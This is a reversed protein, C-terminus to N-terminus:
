RYVSPCSTVLYRFYIHYYYNQNQTLTTHVLLFSPLFLLLQLLPHNSIKSWIHFAKKTQYKNNRQSLCVNTTWDIDRNPEFIRKLLRVYTSESETNGASLTYMNHDVVMILHQQCHSSIISLQWLDQALLSGAEQVLTSSFLLKALIHWNIYM